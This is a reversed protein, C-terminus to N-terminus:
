IQQQREQSPSATRWSRRVTNVARVFRQKHRKRAKERRQELLEEVRLADGLCLGIELFDQREMRDMQSPAIRAKEFLSVCHTMDQPANALLSRVVPGIKEEKRKEKETKEDYVSEEGFDEADDAAAFPKTCAAWIETPFGLLAYFIQPVRTYLHHMTMVGLCGAFTLQFNLNWEVMCGYEQYFPYRIAIVDQLGLFFYYCGYLLFGFSGFIGMAGIPFWWRRLEMPDEKAHSFSLSMYLFVSMGLSGFLVLVAFFGNGAIAKSPLAEYPLNDYNSEIWASALRIDVSSALDYGAQINEAKCGADYKGEKCVHLGRVYNKPGIDGDDCDITGTCLDLTEDPAFHCRFGRNSIALAKINGEPFEPLEVLTVMTVGLTAVLAAMITLNQILGEINIYDQYFFRGLKEAMSLTGYTIEEEDEIFSGARSKAWQHNHNQLPEISSLPMSGKRKLQEQVAATDSPRNTNNTNRQM